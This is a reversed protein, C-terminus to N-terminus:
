GRGAGALPFGHELRLRRFTAALRRAEADKARQRELRRYVRDLGPLERALRPLMGGMEISMQSRSPRFLPTGLVDRAGAERAAAFLAALVEEGDNEGPVIPVCWVATAIGHAALTAVAEFREAPEATGPELRRAVEPDAATIPMEISVAHYADIETLLALDRLVWPSRTTISLALGELGRCAELIRRTRAARRNDYPDALTGVAVPECREAAKRLRVRLAAGRGDAAAAEREWRDLDLFGSAGRGPLREGPAPHGAFDSEAPDLSLVLPHFIDTAM